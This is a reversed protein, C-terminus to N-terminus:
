SCKVSNQSRVSIRFIFAKWFRVKLYTKLYISHGACLINRVATPNLHKQITISNLSAPLDLHKPSVYHRWSWAILRTCLFVMVLSFDSRRGPISNPVKALWRVWRIMTASIHWWLWLWRWAESRWPDTLVSGLTQVQVLSQIWLYEEWKECYRRRIKV